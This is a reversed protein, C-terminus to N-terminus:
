ETAGTDYWVFENRVRILADIVSGVSQGLEAPVEDGYIQHLKYLSDMVVDYCTAVQEPQMDDHNTVSKFM